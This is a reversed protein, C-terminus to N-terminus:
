MVAQKFMTMFNQEIGAILSLCHDAFFGLVKNQWMAWIESM